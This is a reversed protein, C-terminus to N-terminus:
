PAVPDTRCGPRAGGRAAAPQPQTSRVPGGGARAGGGGARQDGRVAPVVAEAIGQRVRTAAQGALPLLRQGAGDPCLGPGREAAGRQGPLGPPLLECLQGSWGGGPQSGRLAGGVVSGDGPQQQVFVADAGPPGSRGGGAAPGGG